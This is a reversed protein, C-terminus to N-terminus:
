KNLIIINGRGKKFKKIIKKGELESIILSIKAESVPFHKRIEKQTVRGGHEKIFNIVKETEDGASPEEHVKKTVAKRKLFILSLIILAILAIPIAYLWMKQTPEKETYVDSFSVEEELLSSEESIDEFLIMDLTYDGEEKITFNEEAAYNKYNTGYTVTIAYEGSPLNFSYAGDKSVYTQEPVSNIKIIVNNAQNLEPDYIIGHVKAGYAAPVFSLLIMLSAIVITRRM